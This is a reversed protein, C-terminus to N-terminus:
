KRKTYRNCFYNKKILDIVFKGIATIAMGAIMVSLEFVIIAVFSNTESMVAYYVPVNLEIFIDSILYTGFTLGGVYTLVKRLKRNQPELCLLSRFLLISSISVPFYCRDDYLINELGNKAVIYYYLGGLMGFIVFLVVGCMGKLRGELFISSKNKIFYGLIFYMSWGSILYLNFERTLRALGFQREVVPLIGYFILWLCFYFGLLNYKEIGKVICRYLPLMILLAIYLYMYWWATTVNCTYIKYVYDRISFSTNMQMIYKVYYLLSVILFVSIARLIRYLVKKLSEEKPILVAGSIMIFIPVASRCMAELGCAFAYKQTAEFNFTIRGITHQVIVWFCAIIRLVELSVCRNEIRIKGTDDMGLMEKDISNM